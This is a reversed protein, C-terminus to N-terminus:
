VPDDMVLRTVQNARRWHIFTKRMAVVFGVLMILETSAVSARDGFTMANVDTQAKNMCLMWSMIPIFGMVIIMTTCSFYEGLSSVGCLKHFQCILQRKMSVRYPQHCVECTLQQDSEGRTEVWQQLCATHVLAISGRCECPSILPGDTEDMRCIRCEAPCDEEPQNAEDIGGDGDDSTEVRGAITPTQTRDEGEPDLGKESGRPSPTRDADKSSEVVGDEEEEPSTRPLLQVRDSDTPETNLPLLELERDRERPRSSTSEARGRRRKRWLLVLVELAAYGSSVVILEIIVRVTTTQLSCPSVILEDLSFCDPPSGFDTSNCPMLRYASRGSICLGKM